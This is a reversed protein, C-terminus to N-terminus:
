PTRDKLEGIGWADDQGAAPRGGTEPSPVRPQTRVQRRTTEKKVDQEHREAQGDKYGRGESGPVPVSPPQESAQSATQVRPPEPEPAEQVAQQGAPATLVPESATPAPRAAEPAPPQSRDRHHLYYYVGGGVAALAVSAILLFVVVRSKRGGARRTEPTAPQLPAEENGAAMADQLARAVEQGTQYREDVNKSLCKMIVASVGAPVEAPADAAAPEVPNEQMIDNFLTALTKGPGGFPRRGTRLEYLVVGLSFIDTLRDVPKGVVQEPSM